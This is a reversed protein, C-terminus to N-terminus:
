EALVTEILNIYFHSTENLQGCNKYDFEQGNKELIL